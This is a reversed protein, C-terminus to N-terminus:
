KYKEMLESNEIWMALYPNAASKRKAILLFPKDFILYKPHPKERMADDIGGKVTIVESNSSAEFGKENLLVAIQQSVSLVTYPTVGAMFKNDELIKDKNEINFSLNPVFLVDERIIKYKWKQAENKSEAVGIKIKQNLENLSSEFSVNKSIGKALIVEQERDETYLQMVFNNDNKYYLIKVSRDRYSGWTFAKVKHNDFILERNSWFEHVFPLSKKFYASARITDKNVTVKTDIENKQLVGQYTKSNNLLVLAQYEPSVTIPSKITKRVEDWAFLLSAAYINNKKSILPSELTNVFTTKAFNALPKVKPLLTKQIPNENSEKAALQAVQALSDASHAAKKAAEHVAISDAKQKEKAANQQSKNSCAGLFSLVLLLISIIIKNM